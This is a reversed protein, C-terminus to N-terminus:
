PEEGERSTPVKTARKRGEWAVLKATPEGGPVGRRSKTLFGHERALHVWDRMTSPAVQHGRRGWERVMLMIPRAPEQVLSALYATAVEAYFADGKSSGRTKAQAERIRKLAGPGFFTRQAQDEPPVIAARAKAALARLPLRRLMRSGIGGEPVQESSPFVKLRNVLLQGDQEVITVEVSWGDLRTGQTFWRAESVRSIEAM